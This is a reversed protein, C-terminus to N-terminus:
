RYVSTVLEPWGPRLSEENLKQSYVSADQLVTSQQLDQSQDASTDQNIGAFPAAMAIAAMTTLAAIAM